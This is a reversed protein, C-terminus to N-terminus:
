GARTSRPAASGCRARARRHRDRARTRCARSRVVGLLQELNSAHHPGAPEGREESARRQRHRVARLELAPEDRDEIRLQRARAHRAARPRTAATATAADQRRERRHLWPRNVAAADTLSATTPRCRRWEGCASPRLRASASASASASGWRWGFGAAPPRRRERLGDRFGAIRCLGRNLACHLADSCPLRAPTGIWAAACPMACAVAM